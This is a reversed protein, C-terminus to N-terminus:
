EGRFRIQAPTDTAVGARIAYLTAIVRPNGDGVGLREYVQSIHQKVTSRSAGMAVAIEDDTMGLALLRLAERQRRTL